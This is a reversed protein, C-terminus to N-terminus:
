KITCSAVYRAFGLKEGADLAAKIAANDTEKVTRQKETKFEDPVAGYVDLKKANFRNVTFHETDINKMGLEVAATAITNKLRLANKEARKIREDLRKKEERWREADAEFQKIIIIYSEVKDAFEGELMDLTDRLGEESYETDGSELQYMLDLATGKLEYLTAM